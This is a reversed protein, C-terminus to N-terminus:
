KINELLKKKYWDPIGKSCSRKIDNIYLKYLYQKIAEAEEAVVDKIVEPILIGIDKLEGVIQNQEKLHILAKEWRAETQFSKIFDELNNKKSHVEGWVKDNKEKFESRVYKTFLPFVQGGLLITQSYNKIVIGEIGFEGGLMPVPKAELITQLDEKSYSTKGEISFEPINDINLISAYEARVNSKIWKGNDLADFLVLHNKPIREYAIANHKPKQLYEAFFYTDNSFNAKIIPEISLLYEVAEKFMGAPAFRNLTNHHSSFVLEGEENIGFRFQSGDIKEQLVVEGVLANDTYPNGLNIVKTYPPCQKM